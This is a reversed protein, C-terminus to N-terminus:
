AAKEAELTFNAEGVIVSTAAEGEKVKKASLRALKFGLKQKLQHAIQSAVDLDGAVEAKLEVKM